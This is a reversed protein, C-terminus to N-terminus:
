FLRTKIRPSKRRWFSFLPLTKPTYGSKQAYDFSCLVKKKEKLCRFSPELGLIIGILGGLLVAMLLGVGFSHHKLLARVFIFLVIGILIKGWRSGILGLGISNEIQRDTLADLAM